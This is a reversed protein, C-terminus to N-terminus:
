VNFCLRTEWGSTLRTAGQKVECCALATVWTAITAVLSAQAGPTLLLSTTDHNCNKTFPSLHWNLVSPFCRSLSVSSQTGWGSMLWTVGQKAECCAPSTVWTAVSGGRSAAKSRANIAFVNYCSQPQFYNPQLLVQQHFASAVGCASQSIISLPRKCLLWCGQGLIFLYRFDSEPPAPTPNAPDRLVM